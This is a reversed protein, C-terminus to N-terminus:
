DDAGGKPIGPITPNKSWRRAFRRIGELIMMGAFGSLFGAASTVSSSPSDWLVDVVAPGLYIACALGATMTITISKLSRDEARVVALFSGASGSILLGEKGSLWGLWDNM